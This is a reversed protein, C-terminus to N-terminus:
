QVEKELEKIRERVPSVDLLDEEVGAFVRITAAESPSIKDRGHKGYIDLFRRYHQLAEKKQGKKDYIEGMVRHVYAEDKPNKQLAIKFRKLASDMQGKNYFYIGLVTYARGYDPMFKIARTIIDLSSKDTRGQAGIMELLFTYSVTVAEKNRANKEPDLKILEKFIKFAKEEENENTYILAKLYRPTPNDPNKKIARNLENKAKENMGRAIYFRALEVNPLESQPIEKKAKVLASYADDTRGANQLARSLAVYGKVDKPKIKVYEYFKEAAQSYKKEETLKVGEEFLKKAEAERNSCSVLFVLLVGIVVLILAYTGFIRESRNLKIISYFRRKM